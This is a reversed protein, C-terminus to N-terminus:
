RLYDPYYENMKTGIKGRPPFLKSWACFCQIAQIIEQNTLGVSIISDNSKLQSEIDYFSFGWKLNIEFNHKNQTKGIYKMQLDFEYGSIENEGTLGQTIKELWKAFWKIEWSLICSCQKHWKGLENEAKIDLTVWNADHEEKEDPFQYNLINLEFLHNKENKWSIKNEEM